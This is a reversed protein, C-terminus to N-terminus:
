RESGVHLKRDNLCIDISDTGKYYYNNMRIIIFTTELYQVCDSLCTSFKAM